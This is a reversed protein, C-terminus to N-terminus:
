MRGPLEGRAIRQEIEVLIPPLDAVSAVVYDAGAARLSTAATETATARDAASLALYRAVDLGLGNGSAALGISWAGAARGEAVGVEADDIKICAHAPWSRLDSLAKWMMLPSPRGVATEGACIVCDPVYGQAAALPLIDQMMERTYGTTSGIKIARERLFGVLEIAGPVLVAHKAAAQRMLPVLAAYLRDGDAIAPLAGHREQWRGAIAADALLATVHDRKAVGM